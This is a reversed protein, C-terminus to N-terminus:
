FKSDKPQSNQLFENKKETLSHDMAYPRFRHVVECLLILWCSQFDRVSGFILWCNQSDRASEFRSVMLLLWKPQSLQLSIVQSCTFQISSHNSKFNHSLILFWHMYVIKREIFKNSIVRHSSAEKHYRRKKSKYLYVEIAPVTDVMNHGHRFILSVGFYCTM